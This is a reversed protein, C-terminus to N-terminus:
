ERGVLFWTGIRKAAIMQRWTSERISFVCVCPCCSAAVHPMQFWSLFSLNLILFAWDLAPFLIANGGYEKDLGKFLCKRSTPDAAAGPEPLDAGFSAFDRHTWQGAATVHLQYCQIWRKKLCPCKSSLKEVSDKLLVSESGVLVSRM